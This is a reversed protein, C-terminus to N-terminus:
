IVEQKLGVGVFVVNILFWCSFWGYLYYLWDILIVRLGVVFMVDNDFEIMDLGKLSVCSGCLLVWLRNQCCSYQISLVSLCWFMVVVILKVLFNFVLMM